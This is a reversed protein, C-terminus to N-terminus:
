KPGLWVHAGAAEGGLLLIASFAAIAIFSPILKFRYRLLQGFTYFAIAFLIFILTLLVWMMVFAFAAFIRDAIEVPGVAHGHRRPSYTISPFWTPVPRASAGRLVFQNALLAFVSRTSNSFESM